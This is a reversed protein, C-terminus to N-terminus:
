KSEFKMLLRAHDHQMAIAVKEYDQQLIQKQHALSFAAMASLLLISSTIILFDIAKQKSIKM